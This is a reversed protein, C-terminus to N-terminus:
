HLVPILSKEVAQEHVVEQLDTVGKLVTKQICDIALGM